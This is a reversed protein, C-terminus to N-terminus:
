CLADRNVPVVADSAHQLIERFSLQHANAERDFFRIGAEPRGNALAVVGARAGLGEGDRCDLLGLLARGRDRPSM